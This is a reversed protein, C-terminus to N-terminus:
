VIEVRWVARTEDDIFFANKDPGQVLQKPRMDTADFVLQAKSHNVVYLVDLCQTIQREIPALTEEIVGGERARALAAWANSCSEQAKVPDGTLLSVGKAAATQAEQFAREGQTLAVVPDETGRPFVAIGVGLAGAGGMLPVCAVNLGDRDLQDLWKIATMTSVIVADARREVIAAVAEQSKM